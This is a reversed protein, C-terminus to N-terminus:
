VFKIEELVNFLFLRIKEDREYILMVKITFREMGSIEGSVMWSGIM